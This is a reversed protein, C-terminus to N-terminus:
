LQDQIKKLSECREYNGTDEYYQMFGEIVLSKRKKTFGKPWAFDPQIIFEYCENMILATKPDKQEMNNM